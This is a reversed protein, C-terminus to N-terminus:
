LTVTTTAFRPQTSKSKLCERALQSSSYSVVARCFPPVDDSILDVWGLDAVVVTVRYMNCFAARCFNGIIADGRKKRRVYKM